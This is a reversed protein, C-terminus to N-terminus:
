PEEPEKFHRKYVEDWDDGEELEKHIDPVLIELARLILGSPGRSEIHYGRYLYMAHLLHRAAERKDDPM